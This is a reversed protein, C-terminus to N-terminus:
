SAAAEPRGTIGDLEDAAAELEDALENRERKSLGLGGQRMQEDVFSVLTAALREQETRGQAIAKLMAEVLPRMEHFLDAALLTMPKGTAKALRRFAAADEPLVAVTLYEYGPRRTDRSPM